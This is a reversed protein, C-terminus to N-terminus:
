KSVVFWNWFQLSLVHERRSNLKVCHPFISTPACTIKKDKVCPCYKNMKRYYDSPHECQNTHHNGNRTNFTPGESSSQDLGLTPSGGSATSSTYM